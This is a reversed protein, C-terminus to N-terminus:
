KKQEEENLKPMFFHSKLVPLLMVMHALFALIFFIAILYWAWAIGTPAVYGKAGEEVKPVDVVVALICFIANILCIVGNAVCLRPLSKNPAMKTKPFAFEKSQYAIVVGIVLSAALLLFFFMGILQRGEELAGFACIRVNNITDVGRSFQFALFGGVSVLIAVASLCMMIRALFQFNSFKEAWKKLFAKM